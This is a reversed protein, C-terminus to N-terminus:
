FGTQKKLSLCFLPPDPYSLFHPPVSPISHPSGYDSYIIHSFMNGFLLLLLLIIFALWYTANRWQRQKVKQGLAGAKLEQGSNHSSPLAKRM